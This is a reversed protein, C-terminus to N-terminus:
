GFASVKGANPAIGAPSISHGLFNADTARLRAKSSSLKLNHKRLREFLARTTKVHATPDSDFVIVGDLTPSHRAVHLSGDLSHYTSYM